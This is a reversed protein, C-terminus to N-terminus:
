VVSKRDVWDAERMTEIQLNVDVIVPIGAALLQERLPGDLMSAYVAQYGHKVLAKAAHFLAIAPGGLTLDQSLLLIKKGAEEPGPATGSERGMGDYYRVPKKRERNYILRNLDYFHYIRNEPVGLSLLQSRMQRVYFSLIVVGDYPLKVGEQPPLVPIDDLLMNQKAESNDLLALIDKKDFWKKYREYYDGTGFLLYKMIIMGKRRGTINAGGACVRM